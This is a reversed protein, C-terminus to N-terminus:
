QEKVLAHPEIKYPGGKNISVSLDVTGEWTAKNYQSPKSIMRFDVIYQGPQGLEPFNNELEFCWSRSHLNYTNPPVRLSTVPRELYDGHIGSMSLLDGNKKRIHITNKHGLTGALPMVLPTPVVVRENTLNTITVIAFTQQNKDGPIVTLCFNIGDQVKSTRKATIDELKAEPDTRDDKLTFVSEDSYTTIRKRVAEGLEIKHRMPRGQVEILVPILFRVRVTVNGEIDARPRLTALIGAAYFGRTRRPVRVTVKVRASRVPPIQVTESGLNIWKSCSSLKSTDLDSNPDIIRWQGDEWQTLEAISLDIEHVENPDMSQLDLATEIVRGPLATLDMRMPQVIFQGFASGVFLFVSVALVVAFFLHRHTINRKRM